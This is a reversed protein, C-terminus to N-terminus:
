GGHHLGHLHSVAGLSRGVWEERSIKYDKNTDLASFEMRANGRRWEDPDIVGDGNSDYADFGGNTGYREM